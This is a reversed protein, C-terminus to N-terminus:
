CTDKRMGPLTAFIEARYEGLKYFLKNMEQKSINGYYGYEDTKIKGEATLQKLEELIMNIDIKHAIDRMEGIDLIYAETEQVGRYIALRWENQNSYRETKTFCDRKSAIDINRLDYYKEARAFIHHQDNIDEIFKPNRYKVEGCLYKYNLNKVKRDIRRIFEEKDDIIIVYNGFTRMRLLNESSFSPLFATDLKYFCLVNCYQYGVARAMCANIAQDGFDRKIVKIDSIGACGELCDETDRPLVVLKYDNWFYHLTNMYLKGDLFSDAYESQGVFKLLM